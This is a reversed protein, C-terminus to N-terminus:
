FVNESYYFYNEDKDGTAIQKESPNKSVVM